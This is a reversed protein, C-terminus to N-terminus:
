HRAKRRKRTLRDAGPTPGAARLEAGGAQRKARKDARQRAKRSREYSSGAHRALDPHHRFVFRIVHRADKMRAKLLTVLRNRLLRQERRGSALQQALRLSSHERLSHAVAFAEDIQAADFGPLEALPARFKSAYHAFSELSLAIGDHTRNGSDESLRALAGARKGTADDAFLFALSRKLETRLFKARTVPAEPTIPARARYDAHAYQVALALEYLEDAATAKLTGGALASKVGPRARKGTVPQWHELMFQALEIAEAALIAIPERPESAAARAALPTWKALAALGPDQLKRM